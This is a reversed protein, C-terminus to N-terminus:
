STRFLFSSVMFSHFSFLSGSCICEMPFKRFFCPLRIRVYAITRFFDFSYVRDHYREFNWHCWFFRYSNEINCRSHFLMLVAFVLALAFIHHQWFLFFYFISLARVFSYTYNQHVNVKVDVNVKLKAVNNHPFFHWCLLFCINTHVAYLLHTHSQGGRSCTYARRQYTETHKWLHKNM